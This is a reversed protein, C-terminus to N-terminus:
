DEPKPLWEAIRKILLITNILKESSDELSNHREHGDEYLPNISFVNQPQIQDLLPSNKQGLNEAKFYSNTNIGKLINNVYLNKPRKNDKKKLRLYHLSDRASIM